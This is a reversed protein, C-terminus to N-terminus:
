LKVENKYALTPVVDQIVGSAGVQPAVVTREMAAWRQTPSFSKILSELDEGEFPLRVGVLFNGHTEHTYVVDMVRSAEDVRTIKYTYEM